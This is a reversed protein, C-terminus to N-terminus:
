FLGEKNHFCPCAYPTYVNSPQWLHHWSHWLETSALVLLSCLYPNQWSFSIWHFHRNIFPIPMWSTPSISCASISWDKDSLCLKVGTSQRAACSLFCFALLCYSSCYTWSCKCSFAKWEMPYSEMLFAAITFCTNMMQSLGSNYHLIVALQPLFFALGTPTKFILFHFRHIVPQAGRVWDTPPSLCLMVEGLRNILM